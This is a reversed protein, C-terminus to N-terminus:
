NLINDIRDNRSWTLKDESLTEHNGYKIVLSNPITEMSCVIYDIIYKDYQVLFSYDIVMMDESKDDTKSVITGIPYKLLNHESGDKDYGWIKQFFEIADELITIYSMISIFKGKFSYSYKVYEKNYISHNSEDIKNVVNRDIIIQQPPASTGSGLSKHNAIGKDLLNSVIKFFDNKRNEAISFSFNYSITPETIESLQPGMGPMSTEIKQMIHLTQTPGSNLTTTWSGLQIYYPSKDLKKNWKNIDIDKLVRM